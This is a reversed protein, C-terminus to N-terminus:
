RQKENEKRLKDNEENIKKIEKLKNEKEDNPVKHKTIETKLTELQKIIDKLEIMAHINKGVYFRQLWLCVMCVM